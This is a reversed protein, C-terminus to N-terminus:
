ESIFPTNHAFSFFARNTEIIFLVRLDSRNRFTYIIYQDSNGLAYRKVWLTSQTSKKPFKTDQVKMQVLM